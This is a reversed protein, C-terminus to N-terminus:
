EANREVKKKRLSNFEELTLINVEEESSVKIERSFINFSDVRFKVNNVFFTDGIKPFKKKQETYNDDEFALCCLLKGCAGSLKGINLSLMQNKARNISITEMENLFSSCCLPLGCAGIGGFMKAKDRAGIQKQEIRCHYKYALIKNLERFDVRNDAVFTFTLKTGDLAYIASLVHMELGLKQVEERAVKLADDARKKNEQQILLDDDTAPRLIPKLEFIHKYTEIPVPKFSVTGVELGRATEAVIKDGVNLDPLSTSFFYSSVNNDFKIGLYHTEEAM